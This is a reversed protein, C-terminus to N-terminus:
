DGGLDLDVKITSAWASGLRVFGLPDYFLDHVYTRHAWVRCPFSLYIVSYDEIIYPLIELYALNSDISPDIKKQTILYDVTQNAFGTKNHRSTSLYNDDIYGGPQGSRLYPAWSGLAAQYTGVQEDKEGYVRKLWGQKNLAVLTAQIDYKNWMKELVQAAKVYTPDTPHILTFQLPNDKGYGAKALLQRALLPNYKQGSIDGLGPLIGDPLPKYAPKGFEGFVQETLVQRDICASLAQRVTKNDFPKAESNLYVQLIEGKKYCHYRRYRNKLADQTIYGRSIQNIISVRGRLFDDMLQYGDAPPNIIVRRVYPLSAELKFRQKQGLRRTWEDWGLSLLSIHRGASIASERLYQELAKTQWYDENWLLITVGDQSWKFLRYPGTGIAYGHGYDTINDVAKPSLAYLRPHCLLELFRPDYRHLTIKLLFTDVAEMSAITRFLRTQQSMGSNLILRNLTYVMCRADFPERNHFRVDERLPVLYTKDTIKEPFDKALLPYIAGNETKAYLGEQINGIVLLDSSSLMNQSDLEKIPENIGIVLTSGHAPISLTEGLAHSLNGLIYLLAM